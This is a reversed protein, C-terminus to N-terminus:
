SSATVTALIQRGKVQAGKSIAIDTLIGAIQTKVPHEMKMAEVVVVTQGATVHSGPEVLVAVVAGDMPARLLGDGGAASSSPAAGTVDEFVLDRGQWTCHVHNGARLYRISHHTTGQRFRIHSDSIELLQFQQSLDESRIMIMPWDYGSRTYAVSLRRSTAQSDTHPACIQYLQLDAYPALGQQQISATGLLAHAALCLAGLQWDAPSYQASKLTPNDAFETALFGTTARGEVFVPHNIVEVLFERNNRLGYLESHQLARTLRRIAEDRDAGYAIVKAIMPDYYPTVTSGTRVGADYRVGELAQPAWRLVPGSQPLFGQRPDEAYLRIEIAHGRRTLQDQTLPLPQGSAVQLQWRVLDQGTILETVPHEVQLRTNMELFYFNEQEDVIFECTGAGVYGCSKAALVAAEGLKRRTAESLLASPAEEVVKQNRRQVSCDREFLYVANGHTDGFVQIEIHRPRMIAKEVILDDSGFAAKAESRASRLAEQLEGAQTVLRMGRGGGGASAKLMVPYGIKAIEQTLRADSQDDGSYGPVCPVGASIMFNKAGRKSGMLEIARAPPGVWVIGVETCAQAFAPNESLFGYGPHIADAGVSRAAEIITEIKLYSERSPSPGVYVAEDACQVHPMTEDADSYIAVTRYGMSQATRQVRVSIEGRNAVLLKTFAPM